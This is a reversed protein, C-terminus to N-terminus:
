PEDEVQVLVRVAKVGYRKRDADYGGLVGGTSEYAAIAGRRTSRITHEFPYRHGTRKNVDTAVVWMRFPNNESM